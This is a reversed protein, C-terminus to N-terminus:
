HQQLEQLRQKAYEIERRYSPRVHSLLAKLADIAEQRRGTRAYLESKNIYAQPLGPDLTIAKNLDQLAREPQKLVAYAAGRNTWGEPDSPARRVAEDYDALAGTYDGRSIKATGRNEYAEINREDLKIARSYDAIAGDFDSMAARTRGRLRYADSYKPSRDISSDAEVLAEQLRGSAALLVVKFLHTAMAAPIRKADVDDLERLRQKASVHAPEERLALLLDHRAEGLHGDAGARLAAEYRETVPSVSIRVDNPPQQAKM